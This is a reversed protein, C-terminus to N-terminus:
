LKKGTRSPISKGAVNKWIQSARKGTIRLSGGETLSRWEKDSVMAADVSFIFKDATGVLLTIAERLLSPSITGQKHMKDLLIKLRARTATKKLRGLMAESGNGREEKKERTDCKM